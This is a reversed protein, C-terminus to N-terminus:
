EREDPIELKRNSPLLAVGVGLAVFLVTVIYQLTYGKPEAVASAAQAWVVQPTALLLAAVSLQALWTPMPRMVIGTALSSRISSVFAM